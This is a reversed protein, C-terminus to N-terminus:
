VELSSGLVLSRLLRRRSFMGFNDTAELERGGGRTFDIRLMEAALVLTCTSHDASRYYLMSFGVPFALKSFM